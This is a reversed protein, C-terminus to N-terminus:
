AEGYSGLYTLERAAVTLEGLALRLQPDHVSAGIDMYFQAEFDSGPIPRSELKLLNVGLAAFGALASYLAGPRNELTLLLSTRDAGPYVELGKGICIFRTYNNDTDAIGERLIRLGYLRACEPSAIVAADRRGGAALAQAAAATNDTPTLAAGPLGKLFAACQRLAQEHSLVERVDFLNTGEPALLAHRVHLRAARVIRFRNRRMLEYVEAVSGATSNELPLVGYRCLGGDVAAFVAPFGRVFTLRPRRFLRECALQAYAGEVGPCAVSAEEPFLAPTTRLAGDILASLAPAGALRAQRSRSMEFLTSFLLRVYGALEPDANQTLRALIERERGPDHIPLGAQRKCRGIAEAADMRRAFLRLIEQDIEDIRARLEQMM